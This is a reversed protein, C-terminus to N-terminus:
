RFQSNFVSGEDPIEDDDDGNGADKGIHLQAAHFVRGICHPLHDDSGGPGARRGPLHFLLHRIFDFLLELIRRVEVVQFAIGAGALRDNVHVQGVLRRPVTDAVRPM